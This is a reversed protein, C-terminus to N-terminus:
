ILAQIRPISAEAARRSGRAQLARTHKIVATIQTRIAKQRAKLLELQLASAVPPPRHGDAHVQAAALSTHSVHDLASAMDDEQIIENM